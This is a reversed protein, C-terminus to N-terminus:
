EHQMLRDYDEPTDVDRLLGDDLWPLYAPSYKSFLARGGQDGTLQLLDPFTALDFLTPNARRDEVLPAAVSPLERAHFEVLARLVEVTVQPQDALLFLAGGVQSPLSGLSALGARVSSSQGADWADNRVLHIALGDVASEVERAHAGTVLIVPELGAELAKEAIARVFPKGYFDLLQKPRGYRRSEGAALIIGAIREHTAHIEQTELNAVLVAQFSQLLATRMKAAQAQLEASAAQNLLAVRRAGAPINRLGGLPDCLVRSLADATITDGLTAGALQAFIEPRHVQEADLPKGLSSLGATVVVLGVFDPISPEHDAPAKIPRQRSGDAEVLLPLDHYGPLQRLATVQEGLLATYRDTAADLPGTVLTIGSGLAGEIEPLPEGAGWVAHRDALSTQWSGVHTTTTVLAPALQRALQFMATTKGGAGVFAVSPGASLRLAKALSLRYPREFDSKM